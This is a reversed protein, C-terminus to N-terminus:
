LYDELREVSTVETIMHENNIILVPYKKINFKDLVVELSAVNSDAGIPILIIEKGRKEKLEFLIRSWVRHEAKKGLDGSEREYLYVVTSFDEGCRKSTDMTNIWLLTRLLDYKQYALKFGESLKGSDEYKELLLAEDYVRNAFDIHSEILTECSVKEKDLSGFAFTDLLSIESRTYYTNIEDIKNAEYAVGVFIGIIFVAITLVVAEWFVNKSAM